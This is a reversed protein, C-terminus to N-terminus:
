NISEIAWFRAISITFGFMPSPDFDVDSSARFYVSDQDVAVEMYAEITGDGGRGLHNALGITSNTSGSVVAEASVVAFFAPIFGLGHGIETEKWATTLETITMVQYNWVQLSRKSSTFILEDDTANDVSETSDTIVMGVNEARSNIATATSDLRKNTIIYFYETSADTVIQLDYDSDLYSKYNCKWSNTKWGNKTWVYFATPYDLSNSVSALGSGNSTGSGQQIIIFDDLSSKLVFDDHLLSDTSKGQKAVKFGYDAM